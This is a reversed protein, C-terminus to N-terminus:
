THSSNTVNSNLIEIPVDEGVCVDASIPGPV